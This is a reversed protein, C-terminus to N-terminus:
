FLPLGKTYLEGILTKAFIVALIMLDRTSSSEGNLPWGYYSASGGGGYYYSRTYYYSNPFSRM